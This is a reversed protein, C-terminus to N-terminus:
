SNWWQYEPSIEAAKRPSTISNIRATAYDPMVNKEVWINAEERSHFPGIIEDVGESQYAMSLLVIYECLTYM